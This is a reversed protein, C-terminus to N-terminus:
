KTVIKYGKPHTKIHVVQFPEQIPRFFYQPVQALVRIQQLAIRVQLAQGAPRGLQQPPLPLLQPLGQAKHHPLPSGPAKRLRVVLQGLGHEKNPAVDGPEGAPQPLPQVANAAEADTGAALPASHKLPHLQM